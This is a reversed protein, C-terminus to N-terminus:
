RNPEPTVAADRDPNHEAGPAVTVLPASDGDAPEATEGTSDAEGSGQQADRIAAIIDAKKANAPMDAAAPYTDRLDKVTMGELDAVQEQAAQEALHDNIRSIMGSKSEAAHEPLGLRRVENLVARSNLDELARGAEDRPIDAYRAAGSNVLERARKKPVTYQKGIENLDPGDTEPDYAYVIEIVRTSDDSM